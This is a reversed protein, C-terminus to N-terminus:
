VEPMFAIPKQAKETETVERFLRQSLGQILKKEKAITQETYTYDPGSLRDLLTTIHELFVTPTAIHELTTFATTLVGPKRMYKGQMTKDCEGPCAFYLRHVVTPDIDDTGKQRIWAVIGSQKDDYLSELLDRGCCDCAIPQYMGHITLTPYNAAYSKPFYRSLIPRFVESLLDNDLVASDVFRFTKILGADQHANLLEVLHSSPPHVYFGLFGNVSDSKLTELLSEEDSPKISGHTTAKNQAHVLWRFPVTNFAGRAQETAFFFANMQKTAAIEDPEDFGMGFPTDEIFMGLEILFDRAFCTFRDGTQQIESFDIPKSM